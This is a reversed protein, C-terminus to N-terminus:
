AVPKPFGWAAALADAALEPDEGPFRGRNWLHAHALEHAIVYRVFGVSRHRLTRKLAVSRGPLSIPIHATVAPGPEFDCLKFSADTMLDDRVPHPLASVVAAVHPQLFADLDFTRLWRDVPAIRLHEHDNTVIANYATAPPSRSLARFAHQSSSLAGSWCDHALQDGSMANEYHMVLM